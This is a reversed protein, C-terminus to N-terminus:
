RTPPEGVVWWEETDGADDLDQILADVMQGIRGEESDDRLSARHPRTSERYKRFLASRCLVRLHGHLEAQTAVGIRYGFLANSYLANAFLHQRLRTASETEITRLVAALEPDDIARDLLGLQLRQYDVLGARRSEARREELLQRHLDEYRRQRSAVGALAGAAFAFGAAAAFGLSQTGFRQTAM